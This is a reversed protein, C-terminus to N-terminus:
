ARDIVKRLEKLKMDVDGAPKFITGTGCVLLNAGRKVMEPASELTVGGDIEILMKPYKALKKKLASIKDLMEPILKHGVIGPNIAMLMVMDIDQLVYDLADLSTAPNLAVGAKVGLNKILKIVRHLHPTAEAHVVIIDAGAKAFAEIAKDPDNVMLHVDVPIKTIKKLAQLMEPHLGFRPVFQNDMVDFHIYDAGGKELKAIVGRLDLMDACVLSAALGYKRAPRAKKTDKKQAM